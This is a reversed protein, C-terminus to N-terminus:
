IGGYKNGTDIWHILEEIEDLINAKIRRQDDDEAEINCLLNYLAEFEEKTGRLTLTATYRDHPPHPIFDTTM